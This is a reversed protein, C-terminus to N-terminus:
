GQHAEGGQRGQGLYPTTTASSRVPRIRCKTSFGSVKTESRILQPTYTKEGETKVRIGASPTSYEIFSSSGAIACSSCSCEISSEPYQTRSLGVGWRLGRTAVM